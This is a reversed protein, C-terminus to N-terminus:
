FWISIGASFNTSSLDIPEFDPDFGVEDLDGDVDTYKVQAHFTASRSFPIEVGGEVHWGGDAGDSFAVGTEVYPDTFRDFVFDGMEEYQWFYVGVGGGVYPIVYDNRGAPLFHLNVELPIIQLAINRRVPAGNPFEFESDIVTTDSDYYSLNGGLNVYDGIFHDYGITFTFNNLDDVDFTTELENQVYIDSDGSIWAYGGLFYFSDAFAPISVFCFLLLLPILRRM